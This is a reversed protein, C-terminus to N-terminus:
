AIVDGANTRMSGLQNSQIIVFRSSLDLEHGRFIRVGERDKVISSVGRCGGTKGSFM